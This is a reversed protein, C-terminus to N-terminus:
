ARLTGGPCSEQGRSTQSPHQGRRTLATSRQENARAHARATRTAPIRAQASVFDRTWDWHEDTVILSAQDKLEFVSKDAETYLETKDKYYKVQESAGPLGARLLDSRTSSCTM